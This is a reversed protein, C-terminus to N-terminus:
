PAAPAPPAAPQPVAPAPALPNLPAVDPALPAPPGYVEAGWNPVAAIDLGRLLALGRGLDSVQIEDPTGAMSADRELRAREFYQVQRQGHETLEWMPESIPAGFFDQGGAARWFGLFPERLTHGTAEFEQEGAIPK